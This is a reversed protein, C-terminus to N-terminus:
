LPLVRKDLHTWIDGARARRTAQIARRQAWARGLGRLADRKARWAVGFQGRALFLALAGLNLLVHLPLLLAFLPAPMNKVFVWVLNRQGHYVSFDSRRGTTASGVHRCRAQPVHVCNWGLLRLRFALDVDEMYCFFNEDLGGAADWAERRYLAAAACPAFVPGAPRREAVATPGGHDRRRARGSVHYLDGTGDTIAADNADILHSGFAGAAANARAADVLAQLWGPEPFADPNLLVVFAAQTSERAGRNSAAAFGLNRGAEVLRFRADQLQALQAASGDESGNDVVVAAFDTFTQAQLARLCQGLWAGGNYNVVVVAVQAM